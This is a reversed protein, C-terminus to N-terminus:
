CPLGYGTGAWDTYPCFRWGAALQMPKPDALDREEIATGASAETWPQQDPRLTVTSDEHSLPVLYFPVARWAFPNWALATDAMSVSALAAIAALAIHRKKQMM